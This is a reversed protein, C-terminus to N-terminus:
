LSFSCYSSIIKGGCKTLRKIMWKRQYEPISPNFLVVSNHFCPLQYQNKKIIIHEFAATHSASLQIEKEKPIFFEKDQLQLFSGDVTSILQNEGKRYSAISDINIWEHRAIGISALHDLVTSSSRDDEDFDAFIVTNFGHISAIAFRGRVHYFTIQQQTKQFNYEKLELLLLAVLATLSLLLLKPRYYHLFAILLIISLAVLVAEGVSIYIGETVAFPRHYVLTVTKTLISVFFKLLFGLVITSSFIFYVLLLLMATSLILFALPVVIINTLLFLNPFQHFYFITFPLTAAQASISVAMLSWFYDLFRSNFNLLPYLKPHILVIGIVASYSLQFGVEFVINPNILILILVSAALSNFINNNRGFFQALVIFSFMFAARQVPASLGTIFAYLWLASLLIICRLIRLHRSRKMFGTLFGIILYIIGVHLGSVSLIHMAGSGSFANRLQFDLEDDYGFTLASAVAFENGSLGAKRFVDLFNARIQDASRFINSEYGIIKWNQVFAQFHVQRNAMFNSYDFQAPNRAGEIQNFFSEAIFIDGLQLEEEVKDKRFYVLVKKNILASNSDKVSLIRVLSKWTKETEAPRELIEGSWIANREPLQVSTPPSHYFSPLSYGILILLLTASSGFVWRNKYWRWKKKFHFIALLLLILCFVPLVFSFSLESKGVKHVIIGLMIPLVIRVLPIQSWFFM